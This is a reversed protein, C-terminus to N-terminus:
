LLKLWCSKGVKKGIKRASSKLVLSDFVLVKGWDVASKGSRCCKEGISLVKGRDVASKKALKRVNLAVSRYRVKV